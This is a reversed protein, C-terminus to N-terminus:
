SEPDDEELVWDRPPLARGQYLPRGLCLVACLRMRGGASRSPKWRSVMPYLVKAIGNWFSGLGMSEAAVMVLSAAIVGDDRATPNGAPAFFFLVLPAQRFILDEGGMFRKLFPTMGSVAGALRLLGSCWLPRLARRADIHLRGARENRFVLIRIGCANTGTPSYGAVELLSALEDDGIASGDFRRVSRRRSLLDM